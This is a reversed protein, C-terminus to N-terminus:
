SAARGGSEPKEIYPENGSWIADGRILIRKPNGKATRYCQDCCIIWKAIGMSGDPRVFRGGYKWFHHTTANIHGCHVVGDGTKPQDTAYEKKKNKM